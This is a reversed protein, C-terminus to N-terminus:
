VEKELISELNLKEIVEKLNGNKDLAALRV